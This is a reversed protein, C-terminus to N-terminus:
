TLKCFSHFKCVDMINKKIKFILVKLFYSIIRLLICYLAKHYKLFASTEEAETKQLINKHLNELRIYLYTFLRQKM